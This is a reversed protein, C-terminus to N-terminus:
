NLIQLPSRTNTGGSGQMVRGASFGWTFGFKDDDNCTLAFGYHDKRGFTDMTYTVAKMSYNKNPQLPGFTPLPDAVVSGSVIQFKQTVTSTASALPSTSNWVGGSGSTDYVTWDVYLGVVTPNMSNLLSLYASYGSKYSAYNAIGTTSATPVMNYDNTTQHQTTDFFTKMSGTVGGALPPCCTSGSGIPPPCALSYDNNKGVQMGDPKSGSLKVPLGTYTGIVYSASAAYDFGGLGANLGPIASPNIDFCFKGDKSQAPSSLTQIVVGNQLIELKITATGVQAATKPVTFDFCVKGPGCKTSEAANFTITGTQDGQCSGCFNDIYAWSAHGGAGCDMTIFRVTVTQGILDGLDISACSWDKYLVKASNPGPGPATLFFPNTADAVVKNSNNALNARPVGAKFSIDTVGDAALVQVMFGPQISPDHGPDEMALAYWYGVNAATVVFTKTLAEAGSGNVGNGIRVARNGAAVKIAPAFADTFPGTIDTQHAAPSNFPGQSFTATPTLSLTAQNKTGAAAGWNADLGNNFDGNQCMAGPASKAIIRQNGSTTALLSRGRVNSFQEFSIEPNQMQRYEEQVRKSIADPLATPLPQAAAGTPVVPRVTQAFSPNHFSGIVMTSMIVMSNLKRWLLSMKM